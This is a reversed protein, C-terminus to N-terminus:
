SKYLMVQSIVLVKKLIESFLKGCSRMQKFTFRKRNNQNKTFPLLNDLFDDFFANIKIRKLFYRAFTSKHILFNFDELLHYIFSSLHYNRESVIM